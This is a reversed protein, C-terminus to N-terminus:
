DKRSLAQLAETLTMAPEEAALPEATQLQRTLVEAGAESADHGLRQRAAVRAYLVSPPAECHVIILPVALEDALQRFRDRQHRQLFSADVVVSFGATAVARTLEGLHRYTATSAATDYLGRGLGSSSSGLPPLGHLRKREVDSRLRIAPLQELLSQSAHTKGSGSVGHTIMLVPTKPTTCRHAYALYAHVQALAAARDAESLSPQAARIGAIKARVMARYVLYFPLLRLGRYDGTRELYANLFRYGLDPRGRESLDMVLFAIESLVDIWRLGPNFEIGDFVCPGDALRVINGLHLDGHGERVFGDRHRAALDEERAAFQAESWVDLQDLLPREAPAVLLPRLASFNDRMPTRVAAPTGYENEAPTQARPLRHHFDAVLGALADIDAPQLDGRRLLNDFLGDQDFQGMRVAYELAPPDGGIQPADLPGGIAVVDLYLPAALRRNLRLEEQCFFLRRELTSFDLFGLALAKKIKYAFPGTLVVFSIHTEIVSIQDVPHPFSAAKLQGLLARQRAVPDSQSKPAPAPDPSADRSMFM